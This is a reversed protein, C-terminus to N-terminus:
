NSAIGDLRMAFTETFCEWVTIATHSYNLYRLNLDASTGRGLEFLGLRRRRPRRGPPASPPRRGLTSRGRLPRGPRAARFPLVARRRGGRVRADVSGAAFAAGLGPAPAIGLTERYFDRLAGLADRPAALRLRVVHM